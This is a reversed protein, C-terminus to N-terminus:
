NNRELIENATERFSAAAEEATAQGYFVTNAANAFADNVESIGVPDPAPTEGCLATAEDVYDFMEEQTTSLLGSNVLDERVTANVPTGRDGLMIENAEDSNVFWSIFAACAEKVESTESVSFFMGPKLWLGDEGDADDSLPPAVLQLTDNTASVTTPYNSWGLSMGADDTVIPSAEDGLTEIQAYEDPNPIVDSDMLDSWMQFYEACISDDEYGLSTNDDSFLTEGHQRVWYNFINTDAVPTLSSGYKGTNAYIENNLSIYDSWTWDSTPAEVGAEELVSPNYTNALLATSLVMGVMQGDIVGTNLINEDINSTDITGDDVYESLDALTGNQAYTSIYLYDMQVIDPMSGSAAETSLKDFYGDWGAPVTTFTINPHESTYLDLVQQTLDHRTQSGWWTITINIPEDSSSSDTSTVVTDGTASESATSGSVESSNSGCGALSFAMIGALSVAIAQKIYKKM